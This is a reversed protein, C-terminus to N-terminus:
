RLLSRGSHPIGRQRPDINANFLFQSQKISTLSMTQDKVRSAGDM